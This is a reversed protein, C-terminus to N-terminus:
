EDTDKNKVCKGETKGCELKFGVSRKEKEDSKL